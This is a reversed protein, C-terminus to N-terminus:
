PQHFIATREKKGDDHIVERIRSIDLQNATLFPLGEQFISYLVLKKGLLDDIGV